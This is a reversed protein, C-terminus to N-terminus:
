RPTQGFEKIHEEYVIRENQDSLKTLDINKEYSYPHFVNDKEL